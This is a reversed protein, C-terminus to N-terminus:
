IRVLALGHTSTHCVDLRPGSLNPSSIFFFFFSSLFLIFIYITRGIVYPSWLFSWCDTVYNQFAKWVTKTAETTPLFLLGFYVIM